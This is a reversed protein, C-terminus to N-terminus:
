DRIGLTGTYYHRSELPKKNWYRFLSNIWCFTLHWDDMNALDVGYLWVSNNFDTARPRKGRELDDWGSAGNREKCLDTTRQREAFMYWVKIGNKRLAHVVSYWIDRLEDKKRYLYIRIIPMRWGSYSFEYGLISPGTEYEEPNDGNEDYEEYSYGTNERDLWSLFGGVAGIPNEPMLAIHIVDPLTDKGDIWDDSTM